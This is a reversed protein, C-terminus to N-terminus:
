GTNRLGTAIGNITLLLARRLTADVDTSGDARTERVRRLLQVQLLQLPLLYRDRTALTGALSQQSGLLEASGSIALVERVTAEHEVVIDDFVHRLHDPVLQDVYERAVALDTKALTMEVNSVFNRFFHWHEYMEGLVDGLGAERAARLGSGVGYWGPVIQRSQTWGFVWPIARLSEIGSDASARRAPRSGLHMDALEEVPTSMAFYRPLDPDDVLARYARQAEASVLDMAPDWRGLREAGARPAQHLVTSEVVAALLQELNERALSPLLYKDSIVEGQETLKIEGDLVGWPQALVADYTPGGGRGVTGGRGHFLRLRVGHARAVDRLRRQALHIEWQSTTIGADKNSDSYGLMVEQVDGRLTVLRRYSPDTLLGDLLDGARRLEDVTELLPVFGIRAVDAALDVLGAERALVVAALVDDVGKTMSIIYTECVDPGHLDLTERIAVFANYTRLDDGELPPPTPSMPRRSTLEQSLLKTRHERPMDEYRWGQEGLRDVLVGVASHHASAHERVDLTVLSLGFAAVTRIARDVVGRAALEGRNTALSTRVLMLDDLLERTQAYDRGARHPTSAAIRARTNVLKERVCTLKLRYPEEANLRRYRPDLDTLVALDAALSDRLEPSVDNLRESVSLDELLRDIVPLLDRVAHDRVLDVVRRTVDPTVFPNGDRDGGIWSGFSLPRADAPLEVGITALADSLDDLVDAVPGRALDDLYYLANRAEDLVEPRNLRLEDTQWLLDILEAARRSVRPDELDRGEQEARELLDAIGRLKLLVSRRAAETPHATFVPRASLRAIADAVVDHALDGSKVASEIRRATARLPDGDTRRVAQQQRARHVQETVNALHFYTSFARALRIAVPLEVARLLDSTAGPDTRATRRVEEVLALLDASDQRVLTAGLLEGLARIDARLTATDDAVASRPLPSVHPEPSV